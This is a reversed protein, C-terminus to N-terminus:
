RTCADLVAALMSGTVGEVALGEDRAAAGRRYRVAPLIRLGPPLITRLATGYSTLYYEALWRVEEILEAGLVHRVRFVAAVPKLEWTESGPPPQDLSTEVCGVRRRGRLPVLVLDIPELPPTFEPPVVYTLIPGCGDYLSVQIYKLSM